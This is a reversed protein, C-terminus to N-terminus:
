RGTIGNKSLKSKAKLLVLPSVLVLISAILIVSPAAMVVLLGGALVQGFGSTGSATLGYVSLITARQSSPIFKNLLSYFLPTFGGYFFDILFFSTLSLLISTSFGFLLYFIGMFILSLIITNITGKKLSYKEAVLSGILFFATAASAIIGFYHVPISLIDKLMIPWGILYFAEALVIIMSVFFLLLINKSKIVSLLPQKLKETFSKIFSRQEVQQESRIFKEEIFSWGIFFSLVGIIAQFFWIYRLDFYAIVSGAVGGLILGLSTMIGLRVFAKNREHERQSLDLSDVILADFAGSTFTLALGAIISGLLLVSFSTSFFYFFAAVVILAYTLLISKKRGYTDAFIGTPIEFLFGSIQRAGFLLGVQAITFGLSLGYVVFLPTILGFSFGGLLSLFYFIRIKNKFMSM